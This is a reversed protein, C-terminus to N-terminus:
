WAMTWATRRAAARRPPAGAAGAAGAFPPYMPRETTRDWVARSTAPRPVYVSSTATGRSRCAAKTREGWAWARMAAM